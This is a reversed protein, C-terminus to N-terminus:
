GKPPKKKIRIALNVGGGNIGRQSPGGGNVGNNGNDERIGHNGGWKVGQNLTTAIKKRWWAVM